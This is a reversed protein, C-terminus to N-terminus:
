ESIVKSIGSVFEAYRRDLDESLAHIMKTSDDSAQHYGAIYVVELAAPDHMGYARELREGEKEWWTYFSFRAVTLKDTKRVAPRVAASSAM